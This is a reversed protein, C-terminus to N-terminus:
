LLKEVYVHLPQKKSEDHENIFITNVFQAKNFFDKEKSYLGTTCNSTILHVIYVFEESKTTDKEAWIYLQGRIIEASIFKTVTDTILMKKNSDYPIPFTYKSIYQM